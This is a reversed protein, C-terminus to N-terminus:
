IHLNPTYSFVIKEAREGVIRVTEVDFGTVRVDTQHEFARIRQLLDDALEAQAQKLEQLTMTTAM